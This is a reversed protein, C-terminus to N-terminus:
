QDRMSVVVSERQPIGLLNLAHARVHPHHVGGKQSRVPVYVLHLPGAILALRQREGYRGGLVQVAGVLKHVNGIVVARGHQQAVHHVHELVRLHLYGQLVAGLHVEDAGAIQNNGYVLLVADFVSNHRLLEGGLNRVGDHEGHGLVLAIHGLRFKEQQVQQGIVLPVAGQAEQALAPVEIHADLVVEVVVAEGVTESRELVLRARRVGAPHIGQLQIVLHHVGVLPVGELPCVPKHVILVHVGEQAYQALALEKHRHGVGENIGTFVLFGQFDHVQALLVERLPVEREFANRQAEGAVVVHHGLHYLVVVVQARGVLGAVEGVTKSLLKQLCRGEVQAPAGQSVILELRGAADEEIHGIHALLVSVFLEGVGQHVLQLGQQM